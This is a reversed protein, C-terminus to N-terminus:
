YKYYEVFWDGRHRKFHGKDVTTDDAIVHPPFRALWRSGDVMEKIFVFGDERMSFITFGYRSYRKMIERLKAEDIRCDPSADEPRREDPWRIEVVEGSVRDVSVFHPPCDKEDGVVYTVSEMDASRRSIHIGKFLSFDDHEFPTIIHEDYLAIIEDRSLPKNSCSLATLAAALLLGLGLWIFKVLPWGEIQKRYM